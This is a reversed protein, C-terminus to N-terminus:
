CQNPTGVIYRLIGEERQREDERAEEDWKRMVELEM